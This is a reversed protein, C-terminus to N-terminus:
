YAPAARNCSRSALEAGSAGKKSLGFALLGVVALVAIVALFPKAGM